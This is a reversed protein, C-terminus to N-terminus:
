KIGNYQQYLMACVEKAAQDYQEDESEFDNMDVDVLIGRVKDYLTPTKIKPEVIIYHGNHVNTQGIIWIGKSRDDTHLWIDEDASVKIGARSLCEDATIPEPVFISTIRYGVRSVHVTIM